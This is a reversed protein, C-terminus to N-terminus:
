LAEFSATTENVRTAASSPAALPMRTLATRGPGVAVRIIPSWSKLPSTGSPRAAVGSSGASAIQKRAEPAAEKMM